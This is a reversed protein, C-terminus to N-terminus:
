DKGTQPATAIEKKTPTGTSPAASAPTSTPMSFALPVGDEGVLEIGDRTMGITLQSLSAMLRDQIRVGLDHAARRAHPDLSDFSGADQPVELCAEWVRQLSRELESSM